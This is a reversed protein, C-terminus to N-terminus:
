ASLLLPPPVLGQSAQLGAHHSTIQDLSTAETDEQAVCLHACPFKKPHALFVCAFVCCAVCMRFRLMDFRLMRFRLMDFRLMRFRLMDFRLMRFRWVCFRLVRFVPSVSCAVRLECCLLVICVRLMSCVAGRPIGACTAFLARYCACAARGWGFRARLVGARGGCKVERARLVGGLHQRAQRTYM